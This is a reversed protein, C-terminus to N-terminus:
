GLKQNVISSVLKGDARGKVQPMLEKMVAGMDKKGSAGTKAIAEDVLREIDEKELQKPLYNKYLEIQFIEKQALDDRGANKFQEVSDNRQKIAKSIIAGIDADSLERRENIQLNKIESHLTRLALLKDQERDKMAQKIDQLLTDLIASPM